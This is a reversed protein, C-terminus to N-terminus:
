VHGSSSPFPRSECHASIGRQVHRTIFVLVFKLCPPSSYSSVCVQYDIMANRIRLFLKGTDGDVDRPYSSFAGRMRIQDLHSFLSDRASKIRRGIGM